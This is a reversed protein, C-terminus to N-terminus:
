LRKIVMIEYNGILNNYFLKCVKPSFTVGYLMIYDDYNTAM